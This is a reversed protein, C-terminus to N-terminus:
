FYSVTLTTNSRFMWHRCLHRYTAFYHKVFNHFMIKRCVGEFDPMFHKVHFVKHWIKVMLWRKGRQFTNWTFCKGASQKMLFGFINLINWTFCKDSLFDVLFTERSVNKTLTFTNWTFCRLFRLILFALFYASKQIKRMKIQCFHKVSNYNNKHFM